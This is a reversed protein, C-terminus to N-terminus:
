CLLLVRNVFFILRGCALHAPSFYNPETMKLGISNGPISAIVAPMHLMPNTFQALNFEYWNIIEKKWFGFFRLIHLLMSVKIWVGVYYISANYFNLEKKPTRIPFRLPFLIFLGGKRALPVLLGHSAIMWFLQAKKKLERRKWAQLKKFEDRSMAFTETFEEDGLYEQM